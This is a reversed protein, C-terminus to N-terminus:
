AAKKAAQVKRSRALRAVPGHDMIAFGVRAKSGIGGCGKCDNCNTKHGMEKSAPCAIENKLLPETDGRVRFTRYGLAKAEFVDDANDASAMVFNKFELPATRWQHTYGTNSKAHKLIAKWIYVPVAAPDGYSGVRVNLNKFMGNALYNPAIDPYIGRKMSAWVSRPAQFITVYCTRKRNKGDVIIGRHPCDGCVSSDNGSHIADVPSIDDRLIWTQIMSGTKKNDTTERFGTAIVVIPKGDIMSPGRYIVYGNPRDKKAIKTM